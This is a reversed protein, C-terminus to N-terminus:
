PSAISLKNFQKGDFTLTTYKGTPRGNKIIPIELKNDKDSFRIEIVSDPLNSPNLYTFDYDCFLEAKGKPFIKKENIDNSIQFAKITRWPCLTQSIGYGYPLYITKGNKMTLTYIDSYSVYNFESFKTTTDHIFNNLWKVKFKDETKYVACCTYARMTGGFRTDWSFLALKKDLSITYSVETRDSPNCIHFENDKVMSSLLLFIKDNAKNLYIENSDFDATKFSDLLHFQINLESDLHLCFNDHTIKSDNSISDTISIVNQPSKNDGCGFTFIVITLILHISKM